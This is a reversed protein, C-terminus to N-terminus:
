LMGDVERARSMGSEAGNLAAWLAPTRGDVLLGDLSLNLRSAPEEEALQDVLRLGGDSLAKVVGVNIRSDGDRWTVNGKTSRVTRHRRQSDARPGFLSRRRQGRREPLAGSDEFIVDGDEDLVSVQEFFSSDWDGRGYGARSDGSFLEWHGSLKADALMSVGGGLAQSWRGVTHQALTGKTNSPEMGVVGISKESPLARRVQSFYRSVFSAIRKLNAADEASPKAGRALLDRISLSESM